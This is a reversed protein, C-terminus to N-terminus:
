DLYSTRLSFVPISRTGAENKGVLRMMDVRNSRIRKEYSSKIENRDDITDFESGEADDKDDDNNDDNDGDYNNGNDGDVLPCLNEFFFFRM